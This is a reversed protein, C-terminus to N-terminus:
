INQLKEDLKSPPKDCCKCCRPCMVVMLDRVPSWAFVIIIHLVFGFLVFALGLGVIRQDWTFEDFYKNFAAQLVGDSCNNDKFGKILKQDIQLMNLFCKGYFGVLALFLGSEGLLCVTMLITLMLPRTSTCCVCFM